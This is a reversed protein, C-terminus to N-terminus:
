RSALWSSAGDDGLGECHAKPIVLLHVPAQPFIDKFALLIDDEYVIAAPIEGGRRSSIRTQGSWKLM